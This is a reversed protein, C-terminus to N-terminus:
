PVLIRGCQDCYFITGPPSHVIQDRERSPLKLHCGSCAGDLLRAAGIGGLKSRLREYSQALGPPLSGALPAREAAVAQREAAISAATDGVAASLQAREDDVQQMEERVAALESEVPELQEMIELEEDEAERRQRDLSETEAAMAQEDRFSGAAGARLRGDIVSIRSVLAQVHEELQDQEKTLEARRAEVEALRRELDARRRGLENLQLHEPLERLRYALRDLALDHAQVELLLQLPDPEEAGAEAPVAADDNVAV